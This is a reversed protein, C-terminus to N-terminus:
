CTAAFSLDLVVWAREGGDRAEAGSSSLQSSGLSEGGQGGDRERAARVGCSHRAMQRPCRRKRTWPAPTLLRARRAHRGAGPGAAPARPPQSHKPYETEGGFFCPAQRSPTNRGLAVVIPSRDTALKGKVDDHLILWPRQGLHTQPVHAQGSAIMATKHYLPLRLKSLSAAPPEIQEFSPSTM